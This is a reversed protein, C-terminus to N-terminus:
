SDTPAKKKSFYQKQSPDQTSSKLLHGEIHTHTHTHPCDHSQGMSSIIDNKVPLLSCDLLSLGLSISVLM